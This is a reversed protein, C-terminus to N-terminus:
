HGWRTSTFAGGQETWYLRRAQFHGMVYPVKIYPSCTNKAPMRLPASNMTRHYPQTWEFGAQGIEVFCFGYPM